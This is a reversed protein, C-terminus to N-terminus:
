LKDIFALAQDKSKSSLVVAGALPKKAVIHFTAFTEFARARFLGYNARVGGPM